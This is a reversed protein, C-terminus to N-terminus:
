CALVSDYMLTVCRRLGCGDIQLLHLSALNKNKNIVSKTTLRSSSAEGGVAMKDRKEEGEKRGLEGKGQGRQKVQWHPQRSSLYDWHLAM